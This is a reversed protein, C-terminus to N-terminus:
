KLGFVKDMAKKMAPKPEEIIETVEDEDALVFDGNGPVGFVKDRLGEVKSTLLSINGNLLVQTVFYSLNIVVRKKFVFLVGFVLLSVIIDALVFYLLFQIFNM